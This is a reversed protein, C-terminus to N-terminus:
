GPRSFSESWARADRRRSASRPGARHKELQQLLKTRPLTRQKGVFEAGFTRMLAATRVKGVGFLRECQTLLQRDLKKVQSIPVTCTKLAM